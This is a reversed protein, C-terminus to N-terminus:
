VTVEWLGRTRVRGPSIRRFRTETVRGDRWHYRLRSAGSGICSELCSRCQQLYLLRDIVAYEQAVEERYELCPLTDCSTLRGVSRSLLAAQRASSLRLKERIVHIPFEQATKRSTM